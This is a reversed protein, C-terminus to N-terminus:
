KDLLLEDRIEEKITKSVFTTDALYDEHIQHRMEIYEADIDNIQAGVIFGMVMSTFMNGVRIAFKGFAGAIDQEQAVDRAFMVFIMSWVIVILVKSLVTVLLYSAKKKGESSARESPTRTDLIRKVNLYYEPPPLEINIGKTKLTKCVNIQEKTLAPYPTDNIIRNTNLLSEIDPISLDLVTYDDIGAKTLIRQKIDKIDRPQQVKKIWQKFRFKDTIKDKSATFNRTAKAINSDYTQANLGQNIIVMCVMGLITIAVLILTDTIFEPSAIREPKWTYPIFSFLGIIALGILLASSGLITKRTVYAKAQESTTKLKM